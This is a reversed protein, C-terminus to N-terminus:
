MKGFIDIKGTIVARAFERNTFLTKPHEKIEDLTMWFYQAVEENPVVVEGSVVTVLWWKLAVGSRTESEWVKRVPEVAIGLEEQLERMVAQQETEGFEIQGGPFCYKGPARVSASREIVLFKRDGGVIVGIAGRRQKENPKSDIETM